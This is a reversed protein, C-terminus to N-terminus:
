TLALAIATANPDAISVSASTIVYGPFLELTAYEADYILDRRYITSVQAFDDLNTRNYCILAQSTDPMTAVIKTKVAVDVAKALQTRLAHTPAWVTVMISQRERHIVRGLTGQAGQRVTLYAVVPVTITSSTAVAGPYNVQVATLLASLIAAASAGTASYVFQNDCVLTVYEGDTPTGTVTVVTNLVSVALGFVAPTVTYTKDQIQYPTFNTGAMPFVSINSVPGGPRPIATPPTGSLTTGAMDHDLQDPLPWGEFIRVDTGTISPQSTGNPYVAATATAALYATIDSIDAM